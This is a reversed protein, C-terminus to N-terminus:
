LHRTEAPASMWNNHRGDSYRIPAEILEGVDANDLCALQVSFFEGGLVDLYGRGFSHV